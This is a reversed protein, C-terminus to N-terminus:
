NISKPHCDIGHEHERTKFMLCQNLSEICDEPSMDFTSLFAIESNKKDVRSILIAGIGSFELARIVAHIIREDTTLAGGIQTVTEQDQM